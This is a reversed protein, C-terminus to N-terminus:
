KTSACFTEIIHFGVSDVPLDIWPPDSETLDIFRGKGMPEIFGQSNLKQSKKEQCDFQILTIASRYPEDNPGVRQALYDQLIWVKLFPGIKEISKEQIYITSNSLKGFVKWSESNSQALAAMSLVMLLVALLRNIVPLSFSFFKMFVAGLLVM